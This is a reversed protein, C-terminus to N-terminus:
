DNDFSEAVYSFGVFADGNNTMLGRDNLLSESIPISTFAVDFHSTDNSDKFEPVFPPDIKKDLLKKWNMNRFYNHNKIDHGEKNGLRVKPDKKLLKILLDKTTAIIYRPFSPKKNLINEMIKKRNPGSFPPSGTLMDFLM